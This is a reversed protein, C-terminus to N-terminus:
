ALLRRVSEPKSRLRFAKCYPKQSLWLHNYLVAQREEEIARRVETQQHHSLQQKYALASHLANYLFM